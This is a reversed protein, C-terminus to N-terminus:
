KLSIVTLFVIGRHWIRTNNATNAVTHPAASFCLNM